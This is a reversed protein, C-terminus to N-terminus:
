RLPPLMLALTGSTLPIAEAIVRPLPPLPPVSPGEPCIAAPKPDRIPLNNL